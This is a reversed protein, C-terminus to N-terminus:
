FNLALPSRRHVHVEYVFPPPASRRDAFRAPAMPLGLLAVVRDMEPAAGAVLERGYQLLSSTPGPALGIARAAEEFQPAESRPVPYPLEADRDDGIKLLVQGGRYLKLQFRGDWTDTAAAVLVGGPNRSLEHGFRFLHEFAEPVVVGWGPDSGAPCLVLERVEEPDRPYGPPLTPHSRFGERALWTGLAGRPDAGAPTRLYLAVRRSM